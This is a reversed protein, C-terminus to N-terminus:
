QESEGSQASAGYRGRPLLRSLPVILDVLVLLFSISGCLIAIGGVVTAIAGSLAFELRASVAVALASLVAVSLSLLATRILRRRCPAGEVWRESSM